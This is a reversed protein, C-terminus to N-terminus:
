PVNDSIKKLVRDFVELDEDSIDRFVYNRYSSMMTMIDEQKELSKPTLVLKRCRGDYPVDARRIYGNQELYNLLSTVSPKKLDLYTELDKPFIDKDSPQSMIYYLVVAQSSTLTEYTFYNEFFRKLRSQTRSYDEAVNNRDILADM